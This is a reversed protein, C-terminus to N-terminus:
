LPVLIEFSCMVKATNWRGDTGGKGVGKYKLPGVFRWKAMVGSFPHKKMFYKLGSDLSGEYFNGFKDMKDQSLFTISGQVKYLRQTWRRRREDIGSGTTSTVYTTMEEIVLDSSNLEGFYLGDNPGPWEITTM